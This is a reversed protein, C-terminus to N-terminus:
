LLQAIYKNDINKITSSGGNKLEQQKRMQKEIVKTTQNKFDLTRKSFKTKPRRKKKIKDYEYTAVIQSQERVIRPDEISPEIRTFQVEVINKVPKIQNTSQNQRTVQRQPTMDVLTYNLQVKLEYKQELNLTGFADIFNTTPVIQGSSDSITLLSYLNNNLVAIFYNNFINIDINLTKCYFSITGTIFNFIGWYDLVILPSSESECGNIFDDIQQKTAFYYNNKVLEIHKFISDIYMKYIPASDAQIFDYFVLNTYHQWYENWNQPNHIRFIKDFTKYYKYVILYPNYVFYFINKKIFDKLLEDNQYVRPSVLVRIDDVGPRTLFSSLPMLFDYDILRFCKGDYMVNDNKIDLHYIRDLRSVDANLLTNFFIDYNSIFHMIQLILLGPNIDRRQILFKKFNKGANPYILYTDDFEKNYKYKFKPPLESKDIPLVLFNNFRDMLVALNPISVIKDRLRYLPILMQELDRLDEENNFSKIVIDRDMKLNKYVEGYSGQGLVNFRNENNSENNQNNPINLFENPNFNVSQNRRNNRNFTQKNFIHPSFFTVNQLYQEALQVQQTNLINYEVPENIKNSNPEIPQIIPTDFISVIEKNKNTYNPTPKNTLNLQLHTKPSNSNFFNLNNPFM